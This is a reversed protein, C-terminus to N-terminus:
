HELIAQSLTHLLDLPSEGPLEFAIAMDVGSSHIERLKDKCYSPTGAIALKEVIDDTVLHVVKQPTGQIAAEKFPRIVDETLGAEFMIPHYGHIGIFKALYPRVKDRAEKVNDSVSTPFYAAIKLSDPNRGAAIAGETIHKKAYHIYPISTCSSLVVGDAIFGAKYLAKPGKVGLYVPMNNRYTDFELEIEGTKFIEGDYHVKGTNVLQRIIDVAETAAQIPKEFPIGAKDQIWGKNSGGMGLILRGHSLADLSAAEMASLTPHRTFPNIVGIGIQISTTNLACATATSFAGGYFYDEFIWCSDMGVKEAHKALAVTEELSHGGFIGVSLGYQNSMVVEKLPVPFRSVLLRNASIRHM